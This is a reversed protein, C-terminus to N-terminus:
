AKLWETVEDKVVRRKNPAISRKRLMRPEIYPYTKLEHEAISRPIGTMYTGRITITQDPYRRPIVVERLKSELPRELHKDKGEIKEDIQTDKEPPSPPPQVTDEPEGGEKTKGQM